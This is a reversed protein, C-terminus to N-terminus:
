CIKRKGMKQFIDFEIEDLKIQRKTLSSIGFVQVDSHLAINERERMSSKLFLIWFPFHFKM